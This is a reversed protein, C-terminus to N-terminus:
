RDLEALWERAQAALPHTPALQLFSRFERVAEEKRGAARACLALGLHSPGHNGDISVCREFDPRASSPEGMDLYASGRNYWAMLDNPNLHAALTFDLIAGPLDEMLSKLCGRNYAAVAYEPNLSLARDFDALAGSPDGAKRRMLGRNNYAPAHTPRAAILADLDGAASKMDGRRLRLASRSLLTEPDDPKLRLAEAFDKEAGEFDGAAVRVSGRHTHALPFEPRLRIALTLDDFAEQLRGLDRLDRGRNVLAEALRPDHKLALSYESVAPGLRGMSSWALGRYFHREAPPRTPRPAPEPARGMIKELRAAAEVFSSPRFAPQKALCLLILERVEPPVPAEAPMPPKESAHMRRMREYRELPAVGSEVHFPKCCLFLEYLVVGYAYLDAAPGVKANEYWMEPAMYSPTGVVTGRVTITDRSTWTPGGARQITEPGAIPRALGFDGVRAHGDKTIFVNAPKLDRHLMGAAHVHAMGRAVEWALRLKGETPRRPHIWSELTGGDVHESLTHLRNDIRDITILEVVHDHPPLNLWVESERLFREVCETDLSVDPRVTKLVCTRDFRSDRVFYVLGMGGQLVSEVKYFEGLRDGAAHVRVTPRGEPSTPDSM